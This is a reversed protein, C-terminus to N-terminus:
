RQYTTPAPKDVSGKRGGSKYVAYLTAASLVIVSAVNAGDGADFVDDAFAAGLATVISGSFAVWAKATRM